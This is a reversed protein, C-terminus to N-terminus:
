PALYQLVSSVTELGILPEGSVTTAASHMVTTQGRALAYFDIHSMNLEQKTFSMDCFVDGDVTVRNETEIVLSYSGKHPPPYTHISSTHTYTTMHTPEHTPKHTYHYTYTHIITSTHLPLYIPPM